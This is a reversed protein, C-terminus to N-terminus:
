RPLLRPLVGGANGERVGYGSKKTTPFRFFFSFEFVMPTQHQVCEDGCASKEDYICVKMTFASKEDGCM